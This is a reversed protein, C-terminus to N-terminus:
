AAPPNPAIGEYFSMPPVTLVQLEADGSKEFVLTVDVFASPEADFAYSNVWLDSEYAFPISTGPPLEVSDGTITARVGDITAALLRDSEDGQNVVRMMLTASRSGEPGTVITANEVRLLGVQAQVGNGTAQGAQMTTTAGPGNFCGSLVLPAVLLPALLLTANRTRTM